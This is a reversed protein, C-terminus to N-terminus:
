ISHNNKEKKLHFAIIDLHSIAARPTRPLRLSPVNGVYSYRKQAKGSTLYDMECTLFPSGLARGLILREGSVTM